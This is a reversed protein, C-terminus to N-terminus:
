EIDEALYDLTKRKKKVHEQLSTNFERAMDRGYAQLMHRMAIVECIVTLNKGPYIPVTVQSIPVNLLEATQGELGARELEAILEEKWRILNVLVEVRKQMRIARIGFLPEVNLIGLGRIEMNHGLRESAFGMIVTSSHKRIIVADDAVLRHGREILDLAIESKGIGSDGTLLLGVGYVDVLTGHVVATPALRNRLHATLSQIFPTTDLPTKFVPVSKEQALKILYEPPDLSKSIIICRIEDFRLLNEIAKYRKGKDLSFLFSVEAAGLIQIREPLFNGDYGSLVLGPRYMDYVTIKRDKVDLDTLEELQFIEAEQQFEDVTLFVENGEISIQTKCFQYEKDAV